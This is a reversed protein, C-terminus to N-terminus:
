MFRRRRFARVDDATLQFWEGNKRRLAFRQHWYEEIGAPDDTKISHVVRIPEPLQISLERERRGVSNTRGIKYFRGAKMLYVFGFTTQDASTPEQPLADDEVGLPLCAQVVGELGPKDLCHKLLRAALAQKSGFRSFTNPSPFSRDQRARLKLEARVPLHGLEKVLSTLKELLHQEDFPQQLRNPTFGAETVADSWKVWHKGLWDAERIGTAAYFRSRGLPVGGRETATRRIEALIHAKSVTASM